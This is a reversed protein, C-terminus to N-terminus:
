AELVVKGLSQRSHLHRHAETAGAETLPFVRDLVPRLEGAATARFIEELAPRLVAERKGLHLLHIGFVGLNPEVLSLPHIRPTRLYARAARLWSRRPVPLGSSIGYFVLRGLPALLRRCAATARGGLADLAV